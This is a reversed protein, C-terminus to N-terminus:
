LCETGLFVCITAFFAGANKRARLTSVRKTSAVHHHSHLISLLVLSSHSIHTHTHTHTHTHNNTHTYSHTHKHTHRNPAHNSSFIGKSSHKLVMHCVYCKTESTINSMSFIVDLFHFNIEKNFACLYCDQGVSEM